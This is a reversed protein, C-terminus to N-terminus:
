LGKREVLNSADQVQRIAGEITDDDRSQLIGVVVQDLGGPV